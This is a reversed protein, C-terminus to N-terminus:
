YGMQELGSRISAVTKYKAKVQTGETHGDFGGDLKESLAKYFTLRKQSPSLTPADYIFTSYLTGSVEVHQQQWSTLVIIEREKDKDSEREFYLAGEGLRETHWWDKAEPPLVGNWHDFRRTKKEFGDQLLNNLEASDTKFHLWL